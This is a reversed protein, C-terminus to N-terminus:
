ETEVRLPKEGAFVALAAKRLQHQEMEIDSWFQPYYANKKLTVADFHYGLSEGMELLLDNLLDTKKEDWRPLQAPDKADPSYFHDMLVRWAEIVPTDGYFETEIGNLAEVFAPAMRTARNAMLTRFIHIKRNQNARREELRKGIYLAAIPGTIIAAITLWSELSIQLFFM